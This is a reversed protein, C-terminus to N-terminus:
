YAHNSVFQSAQIVPQMREPHFGLTTNFASVDLPMHDLMLNWLVFNYFSKKKNLM